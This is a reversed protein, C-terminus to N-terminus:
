FCTFTLNCSSCYIGTIITPNKECSKLAKKLFLLVDSIEHHRSTQVEVIERNEPDVAAFIWLRGGQFKILTEDVLLCGGERKFPSKRRIRKGVKQIWKWVAVHSVHM